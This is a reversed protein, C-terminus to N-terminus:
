KIREGGSGRGSGRGKEGSKKINVKTRKKYFFYQNRHIEAAVESCGTGSRAQYAINVSANTTQMTIRAVLKHLNSNDTQRKHM